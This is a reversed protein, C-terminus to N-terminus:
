NGTTTNEDIWGGHLPGQKLARLVRRPLSGM